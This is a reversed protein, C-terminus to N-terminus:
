ILILPGDLKDLSLNKKKVIKSLFPQKFLKFSCCCCISVSIVFVYYMHVYMLVTCVYLVYM